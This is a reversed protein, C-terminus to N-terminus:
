KKGKKGKMANLRTLLSTQHTDTLTYFDIPFQSKLIETHVNSRSCDHMYLAYLDDLDASWDVKCQQQYEDIGLLAVNDEASELKERKGKKDAEVKKKEELYDKCQNLADL